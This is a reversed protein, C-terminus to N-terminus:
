NPDSELSVEGPEPKEVRSELTSYQRGDFAYTTLSYEFGGGYWSTRIQRYGHSPELLDYFGGGLEGISRWTGNVFQIVYFTRNGRQGPSFNLDVIKEFQGDGNLDIEEFRCSESLIRRAFGDPPMKGGGEWQGSTQWDDRVIQRMVPVLEDVTGRLNERSACGACMVLALCVCRM